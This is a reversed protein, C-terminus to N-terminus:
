RPTKLKLVRELEASLETLNYPKAVVGDFGHEKPKAMIPDMSYGSSVLAIVNPDIKRLEAIAEKGGMGGVITLDMIIADFPQGTMRATQYLDLAAHGEPACVVTYGLNELMAQAIDLIMKDDDVLLIRGTGTQIKQVPRKAEEAAEEGAPLYISFTAGEGTSAVSIYGGHRKIISYVVSLGLGSGAQKTTFYPDFIRKLHKEPIGIGTDSVRIRVYKGDPLPLDPQGTVPMVQVDIDIKGGAPMAQVANIVLNQIVQNLQSRDAAILPLREAFHYSISIASGRLAFEASERILDTVNIREKVPEGGKAFTLLQQTLDRARLSAKEAQELPRVLEPEATKMRALSVNGLISTLINNFDHAIGGALIGLSELKQSKQQEEELQRRMTVDRCLGVYGHFKGDQDLLPSANLEFLVSQGDKRLIEFDMAKIKKRQYVFGMYSPGMRDRVEKSLTEYLKRGLLEDPDYGLLDSVNPSVYTFKGHDDVQWVFDLMNEVLNRFKLESERLAAEARKRETMDSAVGLLAIPQGYDDQVVSTSLFIPFDSGDKRRNLLEGRWGGRITAPLIERTVEPPNHPSRVFSVIKGLLEDETYGYTKLFTENVYLLRDETDTISVCEGISKLAHALMTIEEEARKRETIDILTGIVAPKGQYDIRSGHVELNIVSGDKRMGRFEYHIHQVEGEIRRRINAVVTARDDPHTLDLPGLKGIIEDIRYGFINEFSPSVYQFLNDQILYIGTISSEAILRFKEESERLAEEVQKRETIDRAVAIVAKQDFYVGPALGVEKPFVTGDNKIGWFEFRQPDGEFAARIAKKVSDLNNKGPASLFEPTKGVFYDRPYGYMGEAAKNVDLFYGHEDQIYIADTVSDIIGRHTLESIRLQEEARKREIANAVQGSVYDLVEKEREGYAKPDSYHQLAIVGITKDGAKLPVGLWCSSPVGLMEVEGRRILEEDLAADCLLPSGTRLVYGTLGKSPKQPAPPVDIEDVFYPFSLLNEKEDYLAVYFNEAPMLDKIILHVTQYLEDLSKATEPARAIEYVARELLEARKRETIDRIIIQTASKGEHVIHTTAVEVDIPQGDLTVFKEELLSAQQHNEYSRRVREMAIARYDPHVLQIVPLGILDEPHNAHFLKVTAANVYVVKGECHIGIGDPSLEVLRHYREESERLAEEARKRATIDRFISLLLLRRGELEIFSNSLEFGVERGDWLTLSRELHPEVSRSKFRQIHKNIIRDRIKENYPESIPHKELEARSKGVQRCFAANVMVIMGNEDTLRMGDFSNEWIARFQEESRRLAEEESLKKIEKTREEVMRVLNQAYQEKPMRLDLLLLAYAKGEEEASKLQELVDIPSTTYDVECGEKQLERQLHQCIGPEADVILVRM